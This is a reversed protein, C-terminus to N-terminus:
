RIGGFTASAERTASCSASMARTSAAKDPRPGSDVARSNANPSATRPEAATTFTDALYAMSKM